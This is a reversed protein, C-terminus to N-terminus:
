KLFAIISYRGALGPVIQFETYGVTFFKNVEFSIQSETDVRIQTCFPLDAKEGTGGTPATPIVVADKDTPLAQIEPPIPSIEPISSVKKTNSIIKLHVEV